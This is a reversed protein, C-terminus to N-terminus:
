INLTGEWISINGTVWSSTQCTFYIYCPDSFFPLFKYNPWPASSLGVLAMVFNNPDQLSWLSSCYILHAMFYYHLFKKLYNSLKQLRSQMHRILLSWNLITCLIRIFLKIIEIFNPLHREDCFVWAHKSGFGMLFM